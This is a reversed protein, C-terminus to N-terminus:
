LLSHSRLFRHLGMYDGKQLHFGQIGCRKAGQINEWLDDIFYCDAPNVKCTEFLHEFCAKQPKALGIHGSIIIHDFLDFVYQYSEKVLEFSDPDWNSLVILKHGKGQEDQYAACAELLEIGSRIPITHSALKKPDFITKITSVLLNKERRSVFFSGDELEDLRHLSKQILDHPAIKGMQWDCMIQPMPRNSKPLPIHEGVDVKQSGFTDLVDMLLPEINWSKQDFLGYSFFKMFGISRAIGFRSQRFLVDGLDWIIVKGYCQHVLLLLLLLRRM